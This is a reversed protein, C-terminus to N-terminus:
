VEEEFDVDEFDVAEDLDDLDQLFEIEEVNASPLHERIFGVVEAKSTLSKPVNLRSKYTAKCTARFTIEAEDPEVNVILGEEPKNPMVKNVKYNCVKDDTKLEMADTKQKYLGDVNLYITEKPEVINLLEGLLM